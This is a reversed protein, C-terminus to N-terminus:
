DFGPGGLFSFVLLFIVLPGGLLLLMLRGTPIAVGAAMLMKEFAMAPRVLIAPLYSPLGSSQPRLLHMAEARAVGRNIMDLRQNIAQTELRRGVYAALIREVAFVVASFILILVIAKLWVGSM